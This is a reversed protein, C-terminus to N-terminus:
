SIHKKFYCEQQEVYAKLAETREAIYEADEKKFHCFSAVLDIIECLDNICEKMVSYNMDVSTHKPQENPNMVPM